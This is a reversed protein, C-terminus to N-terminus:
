WGGEPLSEEGRKGVVWERVLLGLGKELFCFVLVVSSLYFAGFLLFSSSFIHM